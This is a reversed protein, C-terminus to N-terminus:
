DMRQRYAKMASLMRNIIEEQYRYAQEKGMPVLLSLSQKRCKAGLRSLRDILMDLAARVSDTAHGPQLAALSIEEATIPRGFLAHVGSEIDVRNADLRWLLFRNAVNLLNFFVSIAMLIQVLNGLPMFDMLRPAYRDYVEPGQNAFYDKAAQTYAVGTLNPVTNNFIVLDPQLEQIASLLGIIQSRRTGKKCLVMTDLKLVPKDTDPINRIPDFYGERISSTRLFPLRKAFSEGQRFTAFQLGDRLIAHEIIEANESFILVALDLGGNKLLRMQEDLSHNTLTVHLSDMHMTAHFKRAFHAAGSGEPGIGIHKGRLGALTKISGANRGLFFVTESKSLRTVLELGEPIPLGNQAMAFANTDSSESLLKLNELSGQTPFNAIKGKKKGAIVAIKDVTANYGGGHMGSYIRVNLGTLGPVFDIFYLILLLTFLLTTSVVAAFVPRDFFSPRYDLPSKETM